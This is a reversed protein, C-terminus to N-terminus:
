ARDIVEHRINSPDVVAWEWGGCVRHTPGDRRLEPPMCSRASVGLAHQSSPTVLGCPTAHPPRCVPFCKPELMRSTVRGAAFDDYSAKAHVRPVGELRRDSPGYLEHRRLCRCRRLSLCPATSNRRPGSRPATAGVRSCNRRVDPSMDPTEFACVLLASRPSIEDRGSNIMTQSGTRCMQWHRVPRM